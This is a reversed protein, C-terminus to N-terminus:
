TKRWLLARGDAAHAEFNQVNRAYDNVTYSGPAWAPLAFEAAAGSLGSARVTIELLHTNPAGFGLEYSVPETAACLAAPAGLVLTAAGLVALVPILGASKRRM